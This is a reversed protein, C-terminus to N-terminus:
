HTLAYFLWNDALRGASSLGSVWRATIVKLVTGGGTDRIALMKYITMDISEDLWTLSSEAFAFQAGAGHSSRFTIRNDYLAINSSPYPNYCLKTGIPDVVRTVNQFFEMGNGDLITGGGSDRRAVMVFGRM